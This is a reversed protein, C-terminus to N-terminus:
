SAQEILELLDENIYTIFDTKTSKSFLTVVSNRTIGVSIGRKQVKFVVYWIKGHEIYNTYMETDALGSGALCLKQVGPLDVDDFWVLTTAQPNSEHLEKLTKHSIKAEVIVGIRDFLIKSIKNAVHATLLKKKGASGSPGVVILFARQKFPIIWFPIEETVLDEALKRHFYRPVVFDRTFIGSLSDENQKLDLISTVLDIPDGTERPYSEISKFEQLKKLSSGFDIADKIEYIKAAFGMVKVEVITM